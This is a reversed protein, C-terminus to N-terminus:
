TCGNILVKVAPWSGANNNVISPNQAPTNSIAHTLTIFM